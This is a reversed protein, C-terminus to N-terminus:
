STNRGNTRDVAARIADTRREIERLRDPGAPLVGARAAGTVTTEASRGGSQRYAGNTANGNTSVKGKWAKDEPDTIMREMVSFLYSLNGGATHEGTEELAREVIERTLRKGWRNFWGTASGRNLPPLKEVDLVDCCAAVFVDKLEHRLRVEEPPSKIKPVPRLQRVNGPTELEPEDDQDETGAATPAATAANEGTEGWVGRDAVDVTEKLNEEKRSKEGRSEEEEVRAGNTVGSDRTVLANSAPNTRAPTGTDATVDSAPEDKLARSQRYRQQRVRNKERGEVLAGAHDWWDHVTLSGECDRDLFRAQVLADVFETCDGDWMAGDALDGADFGTLEGDEAYDLTWYWLLHLHGIAQPIGIGLRRALKRTKPHRALEQHSKIYAM